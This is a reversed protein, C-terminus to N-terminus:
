PSLRAAEVRQFLAKFGATVSGPDWDRAPLARDGRLVALGTSTEGEPRRDTSDRVECSHNGSHFAVAETYARGIGNWPVTALNARDVILSSEPDGVAPGFNYSVSPADGENTKCVELVMAGGGITCAFAVDEDLVCSQGALAPSASFTLGAMVSRVAFM